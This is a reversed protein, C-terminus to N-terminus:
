KLVAKWQKMVFGDGANKGNGCFVLVRKGDIERGYFKVIKDVCKKGARNMLEAESFYKNIAEEEAKKMEDATLIRMGKSVGM